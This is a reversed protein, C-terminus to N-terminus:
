ISLDKNMLHHDRNCHEERFHFLLDVFIQVQFDMLIVNIWNFTKM